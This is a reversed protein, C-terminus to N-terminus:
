TLPANRPIQIQWHDNAVCTAPFIAQTKALMAAIDTEKYRASIHTLVLQKVGAKSAAQAADTATSHNHQHAKDADEAAYTAEHVLLDAGHALSDIAACPKTDGLIAITRGPTPATLYDTSRLVRGDPLQIDEGAKLRGYLPGKPVGEEALRRGDLHGLAPKEEFRYGYSTVGHTLPRCSVKFQDDEFVVGPQIEVISLPYALHTQSVDLATQVFARLGKPGYITVPTEGAQFSRSGLLGPLGFLHDGHLHTIFVKELKGLRLPSSLVQHQTGEGCDVLWFAGREQELRIAIATVNRGKAPMGAGTGLFYLELTSSERRTHRPTVVEQFIEANSVPAM